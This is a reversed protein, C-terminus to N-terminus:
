AHETAASEAETELVGLLEGIRKAIPDVSDAQTFQGESPRSSERVHDAAAIHFRTLEDFQEQSDLSSSNM